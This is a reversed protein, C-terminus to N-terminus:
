RNSAIWETLQKEGMAGEAKVMNGDSKVLVLTPVARVDFKDALESNKEADLKVFRVDQHKPAVAEITRSMTKCPGCWTTYFDLVVTEGDKYDPVVEKIQM